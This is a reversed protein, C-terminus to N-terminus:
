SRWFIPTFLIIVTFLELRGLLMGLSLVWKAAEPLSSFNGAPGIIDGLGPGVNSIATAAGSIATVFDLGIAALCLALLLFTVMYLCFFSMVSSAVSAEIPRGNYLSAFVGHPRVLRRIETVATALLIEIRYVKVAGATSGSCGGVFTLIFFTAIAFNGWTTYDTTAFGTTTMISVVNFSVHRLAMGMAVGNVAYHWLTLVVIFGAAIGFYWRVQTDAFLSGPTGRVAKMMLSFNLGGILMFVTIVIDIWVNKFEGVSNDATSFGGTSLTAMAHCIAEFPTMGALWLLTACLISLGVYLVGIGAAIQRARPLVKETRDSSETRFLQMGGIQLMPLIAVALAIIGIGGLWQLLARWLLTGPPLKDLGVIATGGTTTIGSMAEFYASAYDLKAAAFVFPLAGFACLAVWSLTTLIFAQRITFRTARARNTLALTMGIFLTFAACAAFVQWDAHGYVADALAPVGMALALISLLVGIVFLVPRFDILSAGRWAAM